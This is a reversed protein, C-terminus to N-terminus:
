QMVVLRQLIERQEDGDDAIIKYLYVGNALRDGHDDVGDWGVENYGVEGSANYIVRVLRGAVTYIKITVQCTRDNEIVYTFSTQRSFPNPFNVVQGFALESEIRFEFEAGSEPVIDHNKAMVALRYDGDALDDTAYVCEAVPLGNRQTAQWSIKAADIVVDNQLLRIDQTPDVDRSHRLSIRITSGRAIPDGSFIEAGAKRDNIYFEVALANDVHSVIDSLAVTFTTDAVWSATPFLLITSDPKYEYLFQVTDGAVGGDKKPTSPDDQPIFLPGFHGQARILARGYEVAAIAAIVNKGEGAPAGDILVRGSYSASRKSGEDGYHLKTAPDGFLVYFQLHDVMNPFTAYMALLGAMTFSGVVADGDRYLSTYLKKSMAYLPGPYAEGAGSFVAIAGKREAVSLEEALASYMRNPHAFYGNICSMTLLFPLNDSEPLLAVDERAFVSKASWTGVSGHGLYNMTLVSDAFTSIINDRIAPMATNALYLRKVGFDDPLYNRIIADSSDEFALSGGEGLDAVFAARKMWAAGQGLRHYGCIKDIVSSLENASRVALRGIFMDPLVDTPGDVCVFWNDSAAEYHKVSAEFLRTPIFDSRADGGYDASEPRLRRPNWSADGVLLVFTPAPKAWQHYAYTLFAKIPERDYIGYGFEDYIDQVKVVKVTLGQSAHFNALPDVHLYFDDFTIIIYDAQQSSRLASPADRVIASAGAKKAQSSVLLTTAAANRHDFRLTDDARLLNVIYNPQAPDTIDYVHIDQSSFGSAEITHAGPQNIAFVLSDLNRNEGQYTLDFYDILQWDLFSGTDGPGIIEVQNVGDRLIDPAVAVTDTWSIRGDWWKDLITTGNLQVLTHHDPNVTELSAYGQMRLVFSHDGADTAVAGLDVNYTLSKPTFLSDMFWHEQDTHNPFSAHYSRDIETHLFRLGNSLLPHGIPAGDIHAMRKGPVASVTLWYVNTTTYSNKFPRSYFEIYDDQQLRGDSEGHIRIAVEEGLHFLRITRPDIEASYLGADHLDAPTLRVMGASTTLIKYWETGEDLFYTSKKAVEGTPSVLQVQQPNLLSQSFLRSFGDPLAPRRSMMKDQTKTQFHVAFRIRTVQRMTQTVPNYRLPYFLITGVDVDRMRGEGALTLNTAPFFQNREYIAADRSYIFHSDDAPDPVASPAPLISETPVDQEQIDLIALSVRAEPPIAILIGRCPLAPAGPEAIAAYGAMQVVAGAPSIMTRMQPAPTAIEIILGADDWSLLRPEFNHNEDDVAQSRPVFPIMSFLLVGALTIRRTM